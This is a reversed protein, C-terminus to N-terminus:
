KSLKTINFTMVVIIMISFKMIALTTLSFTMIILKMNLTMRCFTTAGDM